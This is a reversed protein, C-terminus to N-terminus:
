TYSRLCVDHLVQTLINEPVPHCFCNEKVYPKGIAQLLVFHPINGKNKKDIKLQALINEVSFSCEPTPFSSEIIQLDDSALLGMQHSIRAELVIGTAVARGHSLTYESLTELAHGITHGLNLLSRCGKEYPDQAIIRRKGEIARTILTSLPLKSFDFFLEEDAVLGIKLIEVAGNEWERDPLTSLFPLYLIVQKPFYYSGLWNKGQSLNVATKGGIAADVMALLTTPMCIFSIGRCYISAVFGALDAIVGGGLAVITTDRGMGQAMMELCLQKLTDLSKSSEGASVTFLYAMLGAEHFARELKKGYLAAVHTDTIIAFKM